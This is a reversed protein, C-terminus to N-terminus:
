AYAAMQKPMTVVPSYTADEEEADQVFCSGFALDLVEETLRYPMKEFHILDIAHSLIDRPHCRRM